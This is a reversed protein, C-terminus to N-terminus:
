KQENDVIKESPSNKEIYNGSIYTGALLGIIWKIEPPLDQMQAKTWSLYIWVVLVFFCWVLFMLKRASLKGSDDKIIDSPTNM